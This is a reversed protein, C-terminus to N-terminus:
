PRTRETAQRFTNAKVFIQLIQESCLEVRCLGSALLLRFMRTAMKRWWIAFPSARHWLPITKFPTTNYGYLRRSVRLVLELLQGVNRAFGWATM